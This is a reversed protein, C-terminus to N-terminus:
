EACKQELQDNKPQNNRVFNAMKDLIANVFKVEAQLLLDAAINTYENIIIKISIKDMKIIELCATRLIAKLIINLSDFKRGKQLFQTILEDTKIFGDPADELIKYAYKLDPKFENRDSDILQDLNYDLLKNFYSILPEKYDDIDASYFAQVLSLRVISRNNYNQQTM